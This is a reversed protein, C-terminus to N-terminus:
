GNSAIINLINQADEEMWKRLIELHKSIKSSSTDDACTVTLSYKLWLELDAV